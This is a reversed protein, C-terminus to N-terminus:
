RPVMKWGDANPDSRYYRGGVSYNLITSMTNYYSHTHYFCRVLPVHDGYAEDSYTIGTNEDMGKEDVSQKFENWTVIGDGNGGFKKDPWPGTAFSCRAGCYEYIYSCGDIDPNRLTKPETMLGYFNIQYASDGPNPYDADGSKNSALDDTENFQSGPEWPPKSGEMGKFQDTPCIIVTKVTLFQPIMTSIFPPKVKYNDSYLRNALGIQKLNNICKAQRALERARSLAPLLIAALIGIIGIVVLLEVLTFARARHMAKM